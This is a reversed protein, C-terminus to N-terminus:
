LRDITAQLEAGTPKTYLLTTDLLSHGALTKVETLQGDKKLHEKCFTLQLIHPHVDVGCKMSYKKLYVSSM